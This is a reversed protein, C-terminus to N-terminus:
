QPHRFREWLKEFYDTYYSFGEGGKEFEYTITRQSDAGFQYPGVFVRDDVRFYFDLPLEGHTRIEVSKRKETQRFFQILQMITDRTYGETKEEARDRMGLFLNDPDMTIIRIKVGRALMEDILRDKSQRWSSLGFAVVDVREKAKRQCEDITPNAESRTHWIAKIKWDDCVKYRADRRNALVNVFFGLIGSLLLSVGVGNITAFWKGTGKITFFSILLFIIGFLVVITQGFYESLWKYYKNEM